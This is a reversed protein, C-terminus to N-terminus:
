DGSTANLVDINNGLFFQAPKIDITFKEHLKALLADAHPSGADVAYGDDVYMAIDFRTGDPLRKRFYCPDYESQIFGQDPHTLFKVLTRNWIRGADAEGKEETRRYM